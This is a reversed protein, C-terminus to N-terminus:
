APRQTRLKELERWVAEADLAALCAAPSGAPVQACTRKHCPMCPLPPRLRLNSTHPGFLGVRETATPGFLGVTPTDLAGALHTFGTDLGVVGAAAVLRRAVAEISLREAALHIGPSASAISEALQREEPSGWILEVADGAALAESALERWHAATWLKSAWSTGVIFVLRRPDRPVDAFHEAIGFRLPGASQYGLAAACLARSREIAHRDTPVAHRLDYCRSAWPERASAADYGHKVTARAARVVWASKLLGQADIVLDYDREQLSRRWARAERWAAFNRMKLWRRLGIPIVRAVGPHWAAVPALAEEVVWDVESGPRAALLDSVAPFTHFIDGMSSMKVLLIRM